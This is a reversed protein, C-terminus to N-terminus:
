KWQNRSNPNILNHCYPCVFPNGDLEPDAPPPPVHPRDSNEMSVGSTAHSTVSMLDAEDELKSPKSINPISIDRPALSATTESFVLEDAIPSGGPEDCSELGVALKQSHLESYKLFRRRTLTANVARITLFESMKLFLNQIHDRDTREYYSVDINRAKIYRDL